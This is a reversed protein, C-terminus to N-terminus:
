LKLKPSARNVTIEAPNKGLPPSAIILTAEGRSKGDWEFALQYEKQGTEFHSFIPARLAKGEKLRIENGLLYAFYYDRKQKAEYSAEKLRQALSDNVCTIKLSFVQANSRATDQAWQERSAQHGLRLLKLYEQPMYQVEYEYDGATKKQHLGNKENRVWEVYEEKNLGCSVSWCLALVGLLRKLLVGNPRSTTKM